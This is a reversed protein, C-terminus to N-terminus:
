APKASLQKVQETAVAGLLLPIGSLIAYGALWLAVGPVVMTRNWGSDAVFLSIIWGVLLILSVVATLAAAPFIAAMMSESHSGGNRWSLLSAAMGCLPLLCYWFLPLPLTLGNSLLVIKPQIHAFSLGYSIATALAFALLGPLGVKRTFGSMHNEKLLRLAFASGRCREIESLANALAAEDSLGSQLYGDYTDELHSAFEEATRDVFQSSCFRLIRLHKAVVQKWDPM